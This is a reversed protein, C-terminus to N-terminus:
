VGPLAGIAFVVRRNTQRGAENDNSARPKTEGHGVVAFKFQRASAKALMFHLVSHARASSLEWNSRYKGQFKKSIPVNDTHGEIFIDRQQYKQLARALDTLIKEGSANIKTSASEFLIAEPLIIRNGEIKIKKLSEIQAFAAKLEQALKERDKAQQQSKKLEAQLGAIEDQQTQIQNEQERILNTNCATLLLSFFVVAASQKVTTNM